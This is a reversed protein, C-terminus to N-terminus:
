EHQSVVWSGPVLYDMLGYQMLFVREEREYISLLTAIYLGEFIVHLCGLCVVKFSADM